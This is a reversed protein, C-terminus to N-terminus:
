EEFLSGIIEYLAEDDDDDDSQDSPPERVRSLALVSEHADARGEGSPDMQLLLLLPSARNTTTSALSSRLLQLVSSLNLNPVTPSPHTTPRRAPATTTQERRRNPRRPRLVSPRVYSQPESTFRFPSARTHAPACESHLSPASTPRRREVKARYRRYHVPCYPVDGTQLSVRRQKCIALLQASLQEYTVAVLRNCFLLYDCIWGSLARASDVVCRKCATMQQAKLFTSVYLAVEDTSASQCYASMAKQRLTPGMLSELADLRFRAAQFNRISEPVYDLRRSLERCIYRLEIPTLADNTYPHRPPLPKSIGYEQHYIAHLLIQVMEEVTFAYFRSNIVRVLICAGLNVPSYNLTHENIVQMRRRSRSAVCRAVFRYLRMAWEWDGFIRRRDASSLFVNADVQKVYRQIAHYDRKDFDISLRHIHLKSMAHADPPLLLGRM